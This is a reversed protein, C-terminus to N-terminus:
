LDADAIWEEPTYGTLTEIQPSVFLATASKDAADIYAVAPSQEVLTRYKQEAQRLAEEAQKRENILETYLVMGGISGDLAYWPRCEWRTWDVTGDARTYPDDEARIIEGALVRQHMDRWKQPLDPFVEYHSKGIVEGKEAKFDALLRQSVYIYRMDQDFIAVGSRNHEIIYRMLDHSHTLAQIAQKQRSIDMLSVLVKDFGECQEPFAISLLVDLRQGQLTLNVTEGTLYRRGEAIALMEDRIISQTEPTAIRELSALMEDKSNAGFMKLTQPNVDKIKVQRLAQQVFEPHEAFYARFDTVGAGKLQDIAAKVVSFDEEWISVPASEFIARYRQESERLAQEAQVRATVDRFSWVRGVIQRDIYQPKSFREFTRGDNFELVDFSETEPHHYLDQVKTSFDDPHKLQGLVFALALRDDKTALVDDPIGWLEVFRQNFSAIQGQRDVVLIGDATAELTANLLSLSRERDLEAQKRETVDEASGEYYVIEGSAARIAHASERVFVKSGDRRTWAAELGRVEGQQEMLERFQSREYDPELGDQVINLAALQEFSEFGLMQVLIPNALLIRGDPTTRYLGITSHEYMSRFREESERLAAEARTRGTTDRAIGILGVIKGTSNRFPTKITHFSHLVGGVPKVPNEEIIEGNLVRQDVQRIHAGAEPGFLDEDTKGVLQDAPLEFLKEMAPNVLTYRLSCDKVFIFDQAANFITRFLTESNDSGGGTQEVIHETQEDNM